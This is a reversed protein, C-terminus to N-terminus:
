SAQYRKADALREITTAISEDVEGASPVAEILSAVQAELKEIRALLRGIEDSDDEQYTITMWEQKRNYPAERGGVPCQMTQWHHLGKDGGCNKCNGEM